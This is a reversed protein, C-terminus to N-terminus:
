STSTTRIAFTPVDYHRMYALSSIRMHPWRKKVEEGLRRQYDFWINSFGGWQGANPNFLARSRENYQFSPAAMDPPEEM